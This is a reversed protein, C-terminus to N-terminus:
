NKDGKLIEIGFDKEIKAIKGMVRMVKKDGLLKSKALVKKYNDGYFAIILERFDDEISHQLRTLPNMSASKTVDMLAM